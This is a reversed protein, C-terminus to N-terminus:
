KIFNKIKNIVNDLYRKYKIKRFFSQIVIKDSLFELNDKKILKNYEFNVSSDYVTTYNCNEGSNDIGINKVFSRSPFLTNMNKLFTSAYWRVAWSDNLGNINDTLMKYYSIGSEFNFENALKKEDIKKKLILSDKEFNKWARKWTGWGWSEILKLFFYNDSFKKPEIPYMYGSISAVNESTAYLNLADNMYNLFFPSLELDDELIIARDYIQFIKNLGGIINRSLGLNVNNEIIESNQPILRRKLLERVKDIKDKDIENKAGDSFVLVKSKKFLDNKQLSNFLTDLHHLRNYVFIIIPSFNM